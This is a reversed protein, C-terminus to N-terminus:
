MVRFKAGGSPAVVDPAISAGGMILAEMEEETFAPRGYNPPLKTLISTPGLLEKEGKLRQAWGEKGLFKIKPTRHSTSSSQPPAPPDAPAKKEVAPPPSSENAAAPAAASSAEVTAEAETDIEYLDSGM